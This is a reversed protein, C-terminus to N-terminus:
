KAVYMKAEMPATVRPSSITSFGLAAEETKVPPVEAQKEEKGTFPPQAEQPSHDSQSASHRPPTLLRVRVQASGGGLFPPCSHGPSATWISVHLWCGQPSARPLCLLPLHSDPASCSPASKPCLLFLSFLHLDSDLVVKWPFLVGGM